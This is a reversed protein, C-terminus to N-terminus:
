RYLFETGPGGGTSRGTANRYDQPWPARFGWNASHGAVFWIASYARGHIAATGHAPEALGRVAAHM